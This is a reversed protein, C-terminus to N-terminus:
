AILAQGIATMNLFISESAISAAVFMAVAASRGVMDATPELNKKALPM